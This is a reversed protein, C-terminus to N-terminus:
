IDIHEQVAKKDRGVWGAIILRRLAFTIDSKGDKRDITLALINQNM